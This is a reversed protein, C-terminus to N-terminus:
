FNTKKKTSPKSVYKNGKIFFRWPKDTWEEAYDINIRKTIEIDFKSKNEDEILYIEKSECLDVGNHKLTINLADGCKGPGNALNVEKQCNRIKKIAKINSVPELARILVAEPEKETAATINLCNHGYIMYVYLSGGIQWFYKTRDTKKNNYAHCAKDEPAKYAETEVIRLRIEGEDTQRVIIKGLLDRSLEVVEKTYFERALRKPESTIIESTIKSETLQNKQTTQKNNEDEISKSSILKREKQIPSLKVFDDLTDNKRKKTSKTPTSSKMLYIIYNSKQNFLAIMLNTLEFIICHKSINM